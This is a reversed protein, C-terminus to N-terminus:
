RRPHSQRPPDDGEDTEPAAGPQRFTHQHEYSGPALDWGVHGDPGLWGHFRKDHVWGHHYGCLLAGNDLDTRGGDAWHQLHHADCWRAPMGCGPITCGGDRLWLAKTQGTTFCRPGYGLDLVQGHGGLVTPIIGADCALRRVTGAGLLTGADAGGVLTGAGVQERLKDLDMTVFLQAKTTVPVGDAAAVARRIIEVLADGRRRDSGRLDRVGDAPRPAALPGLAAELVAMGEVDLRLRYEFIGDGDDWPQSLVMRRRAADQVSQLEAPAGYDAILRPRLRRIDRPGGVEGLTILADWVTPVADPRLRSRLRDMESLIVAANRVPVRGDVLAERLQAKEPSRVEEAVRHLQGAGGAALSPAWELVWGTRAAGLESTTEGRDMAEGLVAVRAAELLRATEDIERFVPGLDSGSAQWLASGIGALAHRAAALAERREALTVHEGM